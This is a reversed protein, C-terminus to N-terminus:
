PKDVLSQVRDRIVAIQKRGMLLYAENRFALGITAKYNPLQYILKM